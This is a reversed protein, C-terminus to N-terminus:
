FGLTVGPTTGNGGGLGIGIHRPDGSPADDEGPTGFSNQRARSLASGSRTPVLDYSSAAPVGGATAAAPKRRAAKARKVATARAPAAGAPATGASPRGAQAAEQALAPLAASLLPVLALLALGHRVNM